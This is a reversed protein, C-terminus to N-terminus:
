KTLINEWLRPDDPKVELPIVPGQLKMFAGECRPNQLIEAPSWLAGKETVVEGIKPIPKGHNLKFLYDVALEASVMAPQGVIAYVKGEKILDRGEPGMCIGTISYDAPNYGAQEIAKVVGPAMIDPTHVYIGIVEKGHRMLLDSTREFSDENNWNGEGKVVKVKKLGDIISHFGDTCENTFADGLAGTIEIVGGSPDSGQKLKLRAAFIEAAKKSSETIDFSIWLEVKGGEPANDLAMIPVGRENCKKIGPIVAATDITGGFILGNVGRTLFSDIQELQKIIDNQSDSVIIKVGLKEAQMQAGRIMAQAYPPSADRITMGYILEKEEQGGGFLPAALLALLIMILVFSKKEM